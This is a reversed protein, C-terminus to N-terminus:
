DVRREGSSADRHASEHAIRDIRRPRAFVTRVLGNDTIKGIRCAGPCREM